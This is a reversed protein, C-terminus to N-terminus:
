VYKYTYYLKIIFHLCFLSMGKENDSHLPSINGFFRKDLIQLLLLATSHIEVRPCGTMLLTVTIVSTYHDCPYERCIFYFNTLWYIYFIEIIIRNWYCYSKYTILKSQTISFFLFGKSWPIYEDDEM